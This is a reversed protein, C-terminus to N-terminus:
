GPESRREFFLWHEQLRSPIETGEYPEREEFGRSRYLRQADTMFRCTDLRVVVAQMVRAEELLRDLLESGLHRDRWQPAVYMRKVEAVGEALRRVAGVGAAEGECEAVLLVGEPRRYESLRQRVLTPDAPPETVGFEDRLRQHAWAMYDTMLRVAADDDRGPVAERLLYGGDSAM